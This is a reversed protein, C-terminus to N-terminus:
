VKCNEKIWQDIECKRFKLPSNNGDPKVFPFDRKNIWNHITMPTVDCYWAAWKINRLREEEHDLVKDIKAEIRGIKETLISFHFEIDENMPTCHNTNPRKGRNGK